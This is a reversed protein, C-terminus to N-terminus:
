QSRLGGEDERKYTILMQLGPLRNATLSWSGTPRHWWWAIVQKRRSTTSDKRWLSKGDANRETQTQASSNTPSRSGGRTETHRWFHRRDGLPKILGGSPGNLSHAPDSHAATSRAPPESSRLTERSAGSWIQELDAQTDSEGSMRKMFWCPIKFKACINPVAKKVEPQFSTKRNFVLSFAPLRIVICVDQPEEFFLLHAKNLLKYLKYSGVERIFLSEKLQFLFSFNCCNTRKTHSVVFHCKKM